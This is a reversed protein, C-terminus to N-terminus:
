DDDSKDAGAETKLRKILDEIPPDDPSHAVWISFIFQPKIPIRGCRIILLLTEHDIKAMGGDFYVVGGTEEYTPHIEVREILDTPYFFPGSEDRLKVEVLCM